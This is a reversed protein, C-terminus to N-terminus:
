NNKQMTQGWTDFCAISSLLLRSRMVYGIRSLTGGSIDESQYRLMAEMAVAIDQHADKPQAASGQQTACSGKEDEEGEEEEAALLCFFCLM